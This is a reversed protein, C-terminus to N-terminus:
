YIKIKQETCAIFFVRKELINNLYDPKKEKKDLYLKLQVISFKNIWVSFLTQDTEQVLYGRKDAISFLFIFYFLYGSRTRSGLIWSLRCM